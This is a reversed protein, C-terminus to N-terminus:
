RFCFDAPPSTPQGPPRTLQPLHSPCTLLPLPLHLPLTLLSVGHTPPLDALPSPLHPSPDALPSPLHQPTPQGAVADVERPRGANGKELIGHAAALALMAVSPPPAKSADQRAFGIAKAISAVLISEAESPVHCCQLVLLHLLVAFFISRASM